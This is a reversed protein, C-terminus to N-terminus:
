SSSSSSSSSCSYPSVTTTLRHSKIRKGYGLIASPKMCQAEYGLGNDASSSSTSTSQVDPYTQGLGM